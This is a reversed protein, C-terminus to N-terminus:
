PKVPLVRGTPDVFEEVSRVCKLDEAQYRQEDDVPLEVMEPSRVQKVLNRIAALTEAIERDLGPDREGRDRRAHLKSLREELPARQRALHDLVKQEWVKKDYPSLTFFFREHVAGSSALPVAWSGKNVVLFCDEGPELRFPLPFTVMGKKPLGVSIPQTDMVISLIDRGANLGYGSFHKPDLSAAVFGFVPMHSGIDQGGSQRRAAEVVKSWPVLRYLGYVSAAHRQLVGPSPVIVSVERGRLTVRDNSLPLSACGVMVDFAVMVLMIRRM